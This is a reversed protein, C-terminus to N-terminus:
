EDDIESEMKAIPQKFEDDIESEMKSVPKIKIASTAQGSIADDGLGANMLLVLIGVAAVVGVIVVIYLQLKEESIAM